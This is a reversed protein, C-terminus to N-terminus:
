RWYEVVLGPVRDFDRRNRSVLKAGHDMALATETLVDTDFVTV